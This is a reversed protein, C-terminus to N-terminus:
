TYLLSGSHTHLTHPSSCPSFSSLPPLIISSQRRIYWHSYYGGEAVIYIFSKGIWAIIASVIALIAQVLIAKRSVSLMDNKNSRDRQKAKQKAELILHYIRLSLITSVIISIISAIIIDQRYEPTNPDRIRGYHGNSLLHRHYQKQGAQHRMWEGGGERNEQDLWALAYSYLSSM